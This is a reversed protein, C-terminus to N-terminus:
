NKYAEVPVNIKIEDSIGPIYRVMGFESRKFTATVDGACMMKKNMPNASCKFHNVAVTLPKTVGLLTLQGEAAIVENNSFILRTSRFTIKPFRMVEFLSYGPSDPKETGFGMNLSATEIEFIVSGKQASLDLVVTGAVKDFRGSQTTVDLHKFEFVPISHASDLTYSDAAFTSAALVASLVGLSLQWKM